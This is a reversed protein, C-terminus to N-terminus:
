LETLSIDQFVGLEKSSLQLPKYGLTHIRITYEKGRNLTLKFNGEFDAFIEEGTETVVLKAGAIAVGMNDTVKGALTQTSPNGKDSGALAPLMGALVLLAIFVFKKM